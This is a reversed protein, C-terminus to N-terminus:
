YNWDGGEKLEIFLELVLDIAQSKDPKMPWM